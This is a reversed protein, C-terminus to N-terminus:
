MTQDLRVHVTIALGLFRPFWPFLIIYLSTITLLSTKKPRVLDREDFLHLSVDVPLM